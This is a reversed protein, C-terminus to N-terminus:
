VSPCRKGGWAHCAVPAGRPDRLTVVDGHDSLLARKHNWSLFSIADAFPPIGLVPPIRLPSGVVPPVPHPRDVWLVIAKGPPLVDAPGFEYFWPVSEMDYEDLSIPASGTNKITIWEHTAGQYRATVSIREAGAARACNSRCPYQIHARLNGRPDFLYAGDGIARRDDTANEFIPKTLGWHFTSATDRGRGVRVKVSGRPPIAASAPFKFGRGMKDGRHHSDRLWWGRLSLPRTPHGNKIRVWEGNVNEADRGEADWKLKMGLHEQNEQSPGAGCANSNWIGVRREAAEEALKSYSRNWPWETGNPFWLGLGESLMVAVPDIWRGGRKVQIARRLRARKGGTSSKARYALLRITRRGILQELRETAEVAHCAGRRGRARSYSTLEMAQIGTIRVTRKKSWRRGQKIRPRITDGDAVFKVKATWVHCKPGSKQGIVCPIRKADAAPAFALVGVLVATLSVIPTRM